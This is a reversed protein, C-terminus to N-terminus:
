HQRHFTHQQPHKELVVTVVLEEQVTLVLQVLEVVEEVLEVQEVQVVQIDVEVQIEVVQQEM